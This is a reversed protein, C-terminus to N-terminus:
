VDGFLADDGLIDEGFGDEGFISGGFFIEGGFVGEGSRVRTVGAVTEEKSAKGVSKEEKSGSLVLRVEAVSKGM